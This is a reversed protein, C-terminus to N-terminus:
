FGFLFSIPSNVTRNESIFFPQFSLVAPLLCDAKAREMPM